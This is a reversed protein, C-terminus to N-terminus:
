QEDKAKPGGKGHTDKFFLRFTEESMKSVEVLTAGVELMRIVMGGVQNALAAHTDAVRRKGQRDINYAEVLYYM